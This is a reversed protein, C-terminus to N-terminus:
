HIIKVEQHYRNILAVIYADLMDPQLYKEIQKTANEAIQQARDDNAELWKIVQELDSLDHKVPVYHEYPKFLPYFWQEHSSEQKVVLSNSLLRWLYGPYTSTTGDLNLLYKYQLQDSRSVFAQSYLNKYPQEQPSIDFISATVFGADIKDNDKYNQVLSLRSSKSCDESYFCDTLRGRWFAISQKDAWISKANADDIENYIRRWGHWYVVEKPDSEKMTYGDPFLIYRSADALDKDVAFVFLPEDKPITNLELSLTEPTAGDGFSMFLTTEPLLGRDNLRKLVSYISLSYNNFQTTGMTGHMSIRGKEIKVLRVSVDRDEQDFFEEIKPINLYKQPLSSIQKAIIEDWEKPLQPLKEAHASHMLINIFFFAIAHWYIRSVM